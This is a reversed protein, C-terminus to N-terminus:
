KEDMIGSMTLTAMVWCSGIQNSRAAVVVLVQVRIWSAAAAEAFSM